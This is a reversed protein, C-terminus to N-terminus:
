LKGRYSAPTPEPTMPVTLQAPYAAPSASPVTQFEAPRPTGPESALVWAVCAVLVALYAVVTQRRLVVEGQLWGPSPRKLEQAVLQDLATWDPPAAQSGLGDVHASCSPCRGLHEALEQEVEPALGGALFADLAEM